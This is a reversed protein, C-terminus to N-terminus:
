VLRLSAAVAQLPAAAPPRDGIATAVTYLEVAEDDLWVTLTLTRTAGGDADSPHSLVQELADHGGVTLVEPGTRDTCTWSACEDDVGDAHFSRLTDGDDVAYRDVEVWRSQFLSSAALVAPDDEDKRSSGTDDYWSRPVTISVTGSDDTLTQTGTRGLTVALLSCVVLVAATTAAVVWSWRAPRRSGAAVPRPAGAYPDAARWAQGYGPDLPTPAPPASGPVPSWWADSPRLTV